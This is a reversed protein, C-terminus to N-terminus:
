RLRKLKNKYFLIGLATIVSILVIVSFAIAPWPITMNPHRQFLGFPLAFSFGSVKSCGDKRCRSHRRFSLKGYGEFGLFTEDDFFLFCLFVKHSGGFECDDM